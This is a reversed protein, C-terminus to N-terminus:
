HFMLAEQVFFFHFCHFTHTHISSLPLTVFLFNSIPFSCFQWILTPLRHCCHKKTSAKNSHNGSHQASGGRGHPPPAQFAYVVDSDSISTLDDDDAFSRQFGTSYLETLIVQSFLLQIWSLTPLLSSFFLSVFQHALTTSGRPYSTM